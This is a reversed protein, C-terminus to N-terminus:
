AIQLLDPLLNRGCSQNSRKLTQLDVLQKTSQHRTVPTTPTRAPTSPPQSAPCSAPTSPPQVNAASGPTPPPLVNSASAPSRPQHVNPSISPPLLIPRLLFKRLEKAKEEAGPYRIILMVFASYSIFERIRQNKNLVFSDELGLFKFFM